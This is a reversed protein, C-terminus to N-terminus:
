NTWGKEPKDRERRPKLKINKLEDALINGMVNARVRVLKAYGEPDDAQLLELVGAPVNVFSCSSDLMNVAGCNNCVALLGPKLILTDMARMNGTTM